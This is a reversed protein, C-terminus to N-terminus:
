KGLAVAYRNMIALFADYDKGEAWEIYAVPDVAISEAFEDIGEILTLMTLTDETSPEAGPEPADGDLLESELVLRMLRNRDRIRLKHPAKLEPMDGLLEADALEADHALEAASPKHDAPTKSTM